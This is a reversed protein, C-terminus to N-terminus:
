GSIASRYGLRRTSKWGMRWEWILLLLLLLLVWAELAGGIWSPIVRRSYKSGKESRGLYRSLLLNQFVGSHPLYFHPNTNRQVYAPARTALTWTTPFFTHPSPVLHLILTLFSELRVGHHHVFLATFPKEGRNETARYARFPITIFPSSTSDYKVRSISRRSPVLSPRSLSSVLGAQCSYLATTVNTSCSRAARTTAYSSRLRQTQSSDLNRPSSDYNSM